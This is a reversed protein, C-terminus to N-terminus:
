AKLIQSLCRNTQFTTKNHSIRHLIGIQHDHARAQEAQGHGLLGDFVQAHPDLDDVHAVMDAAVRVAVHVLLGARLDVLVARVQEVRAVLPDPVVHVTECAERVVHVAHVGRVVALHIGQRDVEPGDVLEEVRTVRRGLRLGQDLALGAFQRARIRLVEVVLANRQDATRQVLREDLVVRALLPLGIRLVQGRADDVAQRHAEVVVVPIEPVRPLAQGRVPVGGPHLAHDVIRADVHGEPGVEEVLGLRVVPLGQGRRAHRHHVRTRHVAVEVVREALQLPARHVEPLHTVVLAVMESARHHVEGVRVHRVRARDLELVEVRLAPSRLVRVPGHHPLLVATEGLTAVLRIIRDVRLGVLRQVRPVLLERLGLRPGHEAATQARVLIVVHM